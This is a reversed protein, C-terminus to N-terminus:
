RNVWIVSFMKPLQLLKSTRHLPFHLLLFMQFPMLMSVKIGGLWKTRLCKYFPITILWSNRFYRFTSCSLALRITCSYEKSFFKIVTHHEKVIKILRNHFVYRREILMAPALPQFSKGDDTVDDPEEEDLLEIFAIDIQTEIFICQETWIILYCYNNSSSLYNLRPALTLQFSRNKVPSSLNAVLKEYNM